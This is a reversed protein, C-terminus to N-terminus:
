PVAVKAEELKANWWEDLAETTQQKVQEPNSVPGKFEFSASFNSGRMWPAQSASADPSSGGGFPLANVPGLVTPGNPKVDFGLQSGLFKFFSGISPEALTVEYSGAPAEPKGTKPNIPLRKVAGAKELDVPEIGFVRLLRTWKKPDTIDTILAGLAKVSKVFQTDSIDNTNFWNILEGLKSKGGTAFHYLEDAALTIAVALAVWPLMAAAGAAAAWTAALAARAGAILAASGWAWEAATITALAALYKFMLLTIATGIALKILHMNKRVLDIGRATKDLFEPFKSKTWKTLAVVGVRFERVLDRFVPILPGAIVNRLGVLSGSARGVEANFDKSAAIVKDDLIFGMARAEEAYRDLEKSGRALIPLMRAGTEGLLKSALASKNVGDPLKAFGDAVDRLLTEGDKLKGNGDHLKVKLDSFVKAYEKAGGAADVARESLDLFIDRLDDAEFNVERAAYALGQFFETGVGATKALNSAENAADVTEKVAAAAGVVVAGVAAGVGVLGKSLGTMVQEIRDFAQEDVELGLKAALEAVIM